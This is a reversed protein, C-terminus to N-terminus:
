RPSAPRPEVIVWLGGQPRLNTWATPEVPRGPALRFRFRRAVVAVAITLQLMALSAGVCVRPGAAFPLYAYRSRAAAAAPAFREPDFRDPDQWLKKHRHVVWPVIAIISRPPVSLGCVVDAALATRMMMVPLPPYLRMTEDLVRRLYALDALDAVTLRRAGLVRALEGHLRAEAAPHTALLYWVWPLPRLSTAATAARTLIEDHLEARGFGEGDTSDGANALRWLLDRRGAYRARRREAILRDLLAAYRRAEVRTKRRRDLFRLPWPTPLLDLLRYPGPYQGLAALMPDIARDDGAFVAGASATVLHRFADHLDIAEGAPLAALRRAMEEALEILPVADPLLARHDLTPAILRRHRRWAAGEAHLMGSGSAFEFMRRIWTLRPYNDLNDHLIRRIGDPDSVVFLRRGLFRREVVLDDFLQEDCAALSNHRA